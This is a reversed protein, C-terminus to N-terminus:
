SNWGIQKIAVISILLWSIARFTMALVTRMEFAGGSLIHQALFAFVCLIALFVFISARVAWRKRYWLGVGTLVYAFGSAFNFLLVFRVVDGFLGRLEPEAFLAAGGSFITLVGFSVAFGAAFKISTTPNGSRSVM